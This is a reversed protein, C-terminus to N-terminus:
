APNCSAIEDLWIIIKEGAKYEKCPESLEIEFAKLVNSPHVQCVTGKGDWHNDCRFSIKDGKDPYKM